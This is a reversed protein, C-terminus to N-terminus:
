IVLPLEAGAVEMYRKYWTDIFMPDAMWKNLTPKSIGLQKSLDTKSISPSMALIEIALM